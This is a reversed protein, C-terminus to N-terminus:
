TVVVWLLKSVSPPLQDGLAHSSAEFDWGVPLDYAFVVGRNIDQMLPTEFAMVKALANPSM